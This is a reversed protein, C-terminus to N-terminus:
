ARDRMGICYKAYHPALVMRSSHIFGLALVKGTGSLNELPSAM